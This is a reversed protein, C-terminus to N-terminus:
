IEGIRQLQYTSYEKIIPDSSLSLEKLKQIAYETRIDGLIYACKRVFPDRDDEEDWHECHLHMAEVVTDICDPDKYFFQFSLAISEHEKHWNELILKKCMYYHFQKDYYKYPIMWLFEIALSDQTNFAIEFERQISKRELIEPFSLEFKEESIKQTVFYLILKQKDKIM